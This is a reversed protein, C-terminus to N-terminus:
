TRTQTKSATGACRKWPSVGCGCARLPLFNCGVSLWWCGMPRWTITYNASPRSPTVISREWRTVPRFSDTLPTVIVDFREQDERQLYSRPDDLVVTVRPDQYLEEGWDEVAAAVAPNSHVATVSRAGGRLATLVALGGGPEVALVDAEPRLQYALAPPLYDAFEAESSPVTTIPSLNQGDVTLGVQPSPGGPYSM